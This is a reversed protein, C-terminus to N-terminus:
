EIEDIRDLVEREYTDTKEILEQKIVKMRGLEKEIPL